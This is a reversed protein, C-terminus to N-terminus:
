ICDLTKTSSYIQTRDLCPENSFKDVVRQYILLVIKEVSRTKNQAETIVNFTNRFLLHKSCAKM